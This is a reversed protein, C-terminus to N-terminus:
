RRSILKHSQIYKPEDIFSELEESVSAIAFVEMQVGLKKIEQYIIKSKQNPLSRVKIAYVLHCGDAEYLYKCIM